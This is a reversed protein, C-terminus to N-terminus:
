PPTGPPGVIQLKEDQLRFILKRGFAKGRNSDVVQAPQGAVVVLGENPDYDVTEGRAVRLADEVKVGGWARVRILEELGEETFDLQLFTSSFRGEETQVAVNGQYTAQRGTQDLRLNDSRIQYTKSNPGAVLFSDVDEEVLVVEDKEHLRIRRGTVWSDGQQLQPQGWYEVWGTSPLRDMRFATISLDRQGRQLSSRVDGFARVKVGEREIEIRDASTESVPEAASNLQRLWPQQGGTLTMIGSDPSYVAREAGLRVLADPRELRFDGSQVVRELRGARYDVGLERSTTLHRVGAEQLELRVNPRAEVRNVIGLDYFISILPSTLKSERGSNLSELHSDGRAVVESILGESFLILISESARLSQSGRVPDRSTLEVAGIARASELQEAADFELVLQDGVLNEQTQNLVRTLGVGGSLELRHMRGDPQGVGRLRQSRGERIAWPQSSIRVDGVADFEELRLDLGTERPVPRGRISDAELRHVGAATTHEFVSQQRVADARRAGVMEFAALEHTEPEFELELRDGSFRRSGTTLEANQRAQIRSVKQATTLDIVMEDALLRERGEEGLQAQASLTLQNKDVDYRASNSKAELHREAFPIRLRFGQEISLLRDGIGYSLARGDGSSDGMLFRFDEAITVEESKLNAQLQRSFIQTGDALGVLVDGQFEIRQQDLWYRAEEGRIRDTVEGLHNFLIVEVDFLSRVGDDDITFTDAKVRFVTEGLKFEVHEFNTSRRAIDDALLEVVKDDVATRSRSRLSWAVAGVALILAIVLGARLWRRIRM